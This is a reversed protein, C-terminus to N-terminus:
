GRAVPYPDDYGLGILRSGGTDTFDGGRDIWFQWSAMNKQHRGGTRPDPPAPWVRFRSQSNTSYSNFECDDPPSAVTSM